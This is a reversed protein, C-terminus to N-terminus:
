GVKRRKDALQRWRHSGIRVGFPMAKVREDSIQERSDAAALGHQQHDLVPVPCVRRRQHQEAM